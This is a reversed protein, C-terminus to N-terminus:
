YYAINDSYFTKIKYRPARPIAEKGLNSRSLFTQPISCASYLTWRQHRPPRTVSLRNSLSILALCLQIYYVMSKPEVLPLQPLVDGTLNAAHSVSQGRVRLIHAKVQFRTVSSYSSLPHSYGYTMIQLFNQYLSPFYKSLASARHFNRPIPGRRPLLPYGSGNSFYKVLQRISLRGHAYYLLIQQLNQLVFTQLIYKKNPIINRRNYAGKAWRYPLESTILLNNTRIRCPAGDLQSQFIM